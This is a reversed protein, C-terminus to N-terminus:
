NLISRVEVRDLGLLIICNINNLAFGSSTSKQTRSWLSVTKIPLFHAIPLRAVIDAEELQGKQSALTEPFPTSHASQGCQGCVGVGCCAGGCGHQTIICTIFCGHHRERRSTAGILCADQMSYGTPPIKASKYLNSTDGCALGWSSSFNTRCARSHCAGAAQILSIKLPQLERKSSWTRSSGDNMM